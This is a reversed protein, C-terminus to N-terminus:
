KAAPSPATQPQQSPPTTMFLVTVILFWVFVETEAFLSLSINAFVAYIMILLPFFDALTKHSIAHLFARVSAVALVSLFILLGVIGLHLLIDIFGNDGILPQSGWGIQRRVAERFWDFTWLAGFGHGWWPRQSVVGKLLHEWLGVRGTLTASRNFLGFVTELNSLISATGLSFIGLIIYYHVARLRAHVRTWLWSCFVAIHLVIFLIYGAASKAFSLVLLALLYFIGDLFGATNRDELAIIGRCLFVMNVLAAISALHNRHWYIGRWAGFFPAWYMTGTKPAAFVIAISLILLIAGFWFLVGMLQIPRCRIGVYAAVLTAFLLELARFSTVTPGVSWLISALAALIFLALPWNRQWRALYDATQNSRNLQYSVALTVLLWLGIEIWAPGLLVSTDPFLFIFMLARLNALVLALSLIM